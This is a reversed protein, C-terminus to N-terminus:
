ELITIDEPLGSRGAVASVTSRITDWKVPKSIFGDCGARASEQRNSSYARAALALIVSKTRESELEFERMRKVAALGDMVPLELDMFVLDYRNDSFLQVAQLGDVAVTIEAGTDLIFLELIKRHNENDEVLLINMGAGAKVKNKGSDGVSALCRILDADFVPKILTYDAGVMRANQRDEETCGASFMMAVRGPLLKKQQAKSLFDVGSIAPMDSDVLLLDYGNGHEQAAELYGLGEDGDAAMVADIGFSQMRRALVERVTYNDDVLLVRTGSFDAVSRVPEYVSKKFPISFYFISGKGSESEFRIDGDMLAALRSAAALGLGVGGYERSTSGDAQVFSDFISERRGEPIGIGTDRVTYLLREFDDGTDEISLRVEVEGSSTFKVANSVINLLIQRVRVPDGVVQAPIGQDVDCIVEIDRAHASHAVSKCVSQVDRSPDFPVPVLEIHGSEIQVFDLIDNIIKLLLEGSGRFIEVYGMQEPDLETELLLDGMGLIANMPTRIEHSIMALFQSKFRSATEAKDKSKELERVTFSLEELATSLDKEAKRRIEVEDTLKRNIQSLAETRETVREELDTQIRILRASLRELSGSLRGIEDDREAEEFVVSEGQEAREALKSLRVVPSVLARGVFLRLCIGSLLATGFLLSLLFALVFQPSAAFHGELIGVRVFGLYEGDKLIRREIYFVAHEDEQMTKKFESLLVGSQSFVACSIIGKDLCANEALEELRHNQFNLIADSSSFAVLSAVTSGKSEIADQIDSQYFENLVYGLPLLVVTLIAVLGLTIKRGIRFSNVM